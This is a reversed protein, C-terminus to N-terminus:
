IVHTSSLKEKPKLLVSLETLISDPQVCCLYSKSEFGEVVSVYNVAVQLRFVNQLYLTEFSELQRPTVERFM